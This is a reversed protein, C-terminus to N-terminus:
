EHDDVKSTNVESQIQSLRTIVSEYIKKYTNLNQKYFAISEEYKEKSTNHKIFVKEFSVIAISDEYKGVRKNERLVSEVLQMDVIISVMSDPQIITGPVKEDSLNEQPTCSFLSLVPFLIVLFYKNM